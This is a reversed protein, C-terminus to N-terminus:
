NDDMSLTLTLHVALFDCGGSYHSGQLVESILVRRSAGAVTSGTSGTM